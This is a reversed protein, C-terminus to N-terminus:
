RESYINVFTVVYSPFKDSSFWLIGVVRSDFHFHNKFNKDKVIKAFTKTCGQKRNQM